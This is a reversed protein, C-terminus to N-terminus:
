CAADICTPNQFNPDTGRFRSNPYVITATIQPSPTLVDQRNNAAMM